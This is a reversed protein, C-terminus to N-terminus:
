MNEGSGLTVADQPCVAICHGCKICGSVDIEAKGDRMFITNRLCDRVCLGCGICNGKNVTMNAM